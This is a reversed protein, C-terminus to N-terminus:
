KKKKHFNVGCCGFKEGLVEHMQEHMQIVTPNKSIAVYTNIIQKVIATSTSIKEKLDVGEEKSLKGNEIGYDVIQPILDLAYKMKDVSSLGSAKSTFEEMVEMSALIVSAFNMENTKIWPEMLLITLEHLEKQLNEETVVERKSLPAVQPEVVKTEVAKM